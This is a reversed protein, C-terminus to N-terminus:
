KMAIKSGKNLTSNLTKEGVHAYYIITRKRHKKNSVLVTCELMDLYEYYMIICEESSCKLYLWFLNKNCWYFMNLFVQNRIGSESLNFGM